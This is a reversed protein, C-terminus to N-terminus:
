DSRLLSGKSYMVRSTYVLKGAEEWWGFYSLSYELSIKGGPHLCFVSLSCGFPTCHECEEKCRLSAGCVSIFENTSVKVLCLCQLPFSDPSNVARLLVKVLSTPNPETKNKKECILLQDVGRFEGGGGFLQKALPHLCLGGSQPHPMKFPLFTTVESKILYYCLLTHTVSFCSKPHLCLSETANWAHLRGSQPFYASCGAQLPLESLWLHLLDAVKYNWKLPDFSLM